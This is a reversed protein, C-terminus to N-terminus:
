DARLSRQLDESDCRKVLFMEARGGAPERRGVLRAPFVRTNNLVLVDGSMLLDPFEAFSSDRFSGLTRDVVLMRSDERHEAPEQAILEPPLHYDFESLRM